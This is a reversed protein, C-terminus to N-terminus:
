AAASASASAVADEIGALRKKCSTSIAANKMLKAIQTAKEPGFKAVLAKAISLNTSDKGVKKEVKEKKSM